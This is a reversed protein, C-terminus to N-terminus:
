RHRSPKLLYLVDRVFDVAIFPAAIMIAFQSSSLENLLYRPYLAAIIAVVTLYAAVIAKGWYSRTFMNKQM